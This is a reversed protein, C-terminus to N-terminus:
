GEGRARNLIPPSPMPQWAVAIFDENYRGECVWGNAYHGGDDMQAFTYSWKDCADALKRLGAPTLDLETM